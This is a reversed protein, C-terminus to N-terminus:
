GSGGFLWAAGDGQHTVVLPRVGLIHDRVKGLGQIPSELSLNGPYQDPPIDPDVLKTQQRGPHVKVRHDEVLKVLMQRGPGLDQVELVGEEDGPPQEPQLDLVQLHLWQAVQEEPPQQDGEGRGAM